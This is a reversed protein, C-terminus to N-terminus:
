AATNVEVFGVIGNSNLDHKSYCTHEHKPSKLATYLPGGACSGDEKKSAYFDVEHVRNAPDGWYILVYPGAPQFQTCDSGHLEPRDPKIHTGTCKPNNFSGIWPNGRKGLLHPTTFSALSTTNTPTIAESLQLTRSPPLAGASVALLFLALLQM